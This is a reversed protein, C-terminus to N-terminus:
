KLLKKLAQQLIKQATPQTSPKAPAPSPPTAQPIPAPTTTPPPPATSAQPTATTVPSPEPAFGPSKYGHCSADNKKLYGNDNICRPPADYYQRCAKADRDQKKSCEAPIGPDLVSQEDVTQIQGSDQSDVAGYKLERNYLERAQNYQDQANNQKANANQYNQWASSTRSDGAAEWIEKAQWKALKADTFERLKCFMADYSKGLATNRDDNPKAEFSNQCYRKFLDATTTNQLIFNQFAKTEQYCFQSKMIEIDTANKFLNFLYVSEQQNLEKFIREHWPEKASNIDLVTNAELDKQIDLWITNAQKATKNPLLDRINYTAYAKAGFETSGTPTYYQEFDFCQAKTVTGCDIQNKDKDPVINLLVGEPSYFRLNSMDALDPRALSDDRMGVAISGAPIYIGNVKITRTVTGYRMRFRPLIDMSVQTTQGIKYNALDAENYITELIASDQFDLNSIDIREQPALPVLGNVSNPVTGITFQLFSNKDFYVSFYGGTKLNYIRVPNTQSITQNPNYYIGLRDGGQYQAAPIANIIMRLQDLEALDQPEPDVVVVTTTGPDQTQPNDVSSNAPAPNSTVTAPEIRIQGVGIRTIIKQEKAWAPNLSTILVLTLFILNM